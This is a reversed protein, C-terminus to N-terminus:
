LAGRTGDEDDRDFDYEEEVVIRSQKWLQDLDVRSPIVELISEMSVGAFKCIDRLDLISPARKGQLYAMMTQYPIGTTVCAREVTWATNRKERRRWRIHEERLVFGIKNGVSRLDDAPVTTRRIAKNRRQGAM